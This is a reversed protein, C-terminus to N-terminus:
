FFHRVTSAFEDSMWGCDTNRRLWYGLGDLDNKPSDTDLFTEEGAMNQQNLILSKMAKGVEIIITRASCDPGNLLDLLEGLRDHKRKHLQPTTLAIGGDNYSLLLWEFYVSKAADLDVKSNWKLDLENIRNFLITAFQYKSQDTKNMHMYCDCRIKDFLKKLWNDDLITGLVYTGAFPYRAIEDPLLLKIFSEQQQKISWKMVAEIIPWACDNRSWNCFNSYADNQVSIYNVFYVVDDYAVYIDKGGM